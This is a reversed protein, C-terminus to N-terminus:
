ILHWFEKKFITIAGGSKNFLIQFYGSKTRQFYFRFLKFSWVCEEM